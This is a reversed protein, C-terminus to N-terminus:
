DLHASVFVADEYQRVQSSHGCPGMWPSDTTWRWKATHSQYTFPRVNNNDYVLQMFMEQGSGFELRMEHTSMGNWLANIAADSMKYQADGPSGVANSTLVASGGLTAVHTWCSDGGGSSGSAMAVPEGIFGQNPGSNARVLTQVRGPLVGLGHELEKFANGGVGAVMDVWGSDFDPATPGEYPLWALVRVDAVSSQTAAHTRAWGSGGADVINGNSASPAWLRVTKEGYLAVLGGYSTTSSDSQATGISAFVYGKSNGDVARILVKVRGPLVGLGHGIEAFSDDGARSSLKFWGSDFAPAVGSSSMSVRVDVDSSEQSHVGDGFAETVVIGRGLATGGSSSPAWLRVARAVANYGFQVGGYFGSADDDRGNPAGAARFIYGKNAGDRAKLLVDVVNQEPAALSHSVAVELFSGQTAASQARMLRWGSDFGGSTSSLLVTHSTCLSSVGGGAVVLQGTVPDAAFADLKEGCSDVQVVEYHSPLAAEEAIPPLNGVMAGVAANSPVSLSLRQCAVPGSASAPDGLEPFSTLAQSMASGVPASKRGLFAWSSGRGVRQPPTVGITALADVDREFLADTGVGQLAGAVFTGDDLGDILDPLDGSPNRLDVTATDVVAGSEEDVFLLSMGPQNSAFETGRYQLSAFSVFAKEAVVCRGHLRAEKVLDSGPRGGKETVFSFSHRWGLAAAEVSGLATLADRAVGIHGSCEDACGVAIITGDPVSNIKDRFAAAVGGSSDGLTDYRSWFWPGSAIDYKDFLWLNLGRPNGRPFQGNTWQLRGNVYLRVLDGPRPNTDLGCSHVGIIGNSPLEATGGPAYPVPSPDGAKTSEFVGHYGNGSVDPWSVAERAPGFGIRPWSLVLSPSPSATQGLEALWVQRVQTADLMTAWVSPAGLAGEYHVSNGGGGCNNTPGRFLTFVGPQPITGGTLVGSGSGWVAGDIRLSWTGDSARWSFAYHHWNLDWDLWNRTLLTASQEGIVVRWSADSWRGLMVSCQGVSTSYLALPAFDTAVMRFWVSYTFESAPWVVGGVSAQGTVKHANEAYEIQPRRDLGRVWVQLNAQLSGCKWSNGSVSTVVSDSDTGCQLGFMSSTSGDGSNKCSDLRTYTSHCNCSTRQNVEAYTNWRYNSVGWWYASPAGNVGFCTARFQADGGGIYNVDMSSYHWHEDDLAGADGENVADNSNWGESRSAWMGVGVLTWGGDDSELDCYTKLVRGRIRIYYTGSSADPIDRSIAACSRAPNVETGLAGCDACEIVPDPEWRPRMTDGHVASGDLNNTTEDVWTALGTADSTTTSLYLLVLGSSSAAPPTYLVSRVDPASLVMSWLAVQAIRGRFAQGLDFGGCVADQEQALVFCGGQAISRGGASLTGAGVQKGNQYAVLAGDSHRWTVAAHEWRGTAVRIGTGLTAGKVHAIIQGESQYMLYENDASSTAYSILGFTETRQTWVWCTFTVEDQPFPFPSRQIRHFNADTEFEVYNITLSSPAVIDGVGLSAPEIRDCAAQTREVTYFRIDDVFASTLANSGVAMLHLNVKTPVPSDYADVTGLTKYFISFTQGWSAIDM